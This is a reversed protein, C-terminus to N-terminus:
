LLVRYLLIKGIFNGKIDKGSVWRHRRTTKKKKKKNEQEEKSTAGEFVEGIVKTFWCYLSVKIADIYVVYLPIYSCLNMKM